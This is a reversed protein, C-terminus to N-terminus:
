RELRWGDDYLAVQVKRTPQKQYDIPSLPAFPTLNQYRTTYEITAHQGDSEMQIGTVNVLDEEALKVRQIQYKRDEAPTPLLYPTAKTTFQIFPKGLESLKQYRDVTLLGARELGADLARRAHNPDGCFLDHSTIGPYPTQTKVLQYAQERNLASSNCSTLVLYLLSFLLTLPKM